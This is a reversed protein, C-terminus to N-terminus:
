NALTAPPPEEGTELAGIRDSLAKFIQGYQDALGRVFKATESQGRMLQEIAEVHENHGDIGEKASAM